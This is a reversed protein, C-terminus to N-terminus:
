LALSTNTNGHCDPLRSGHERRRGLRGDNELVLDKNIQASLMQQASVGAREKHQATSGCVDLPLDSSRSSPKSCPVFLLRQAM